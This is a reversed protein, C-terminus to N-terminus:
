LRGHKHKGKSKAKRHYDPHYKVTKAMPLECAVCYRPFGPPASGNITDDFYEGCSECVTGDLRDEAADGM